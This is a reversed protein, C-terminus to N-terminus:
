AGERKDTEDLGQGQWFFHAGLFGVAIGVTWGFPPWASLRWVFASLTDHKRNLARAELVGFSGIAAAGWALWIWDERSASKVAAALSAIPTEKSMSTQDM